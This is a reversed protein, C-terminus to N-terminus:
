AFISPPVSVRSALTPSDWHPLRRGLPVFPKKWKDSKLQLAAPLFSAGAIAFPSSRCSPYRTPLASSSPTPESRPVSPVGSLGCPLLPDLEPLCLEMTPTLLLLSSTMFSAFEAPLPLMKWSPQLPFRTQFASLFASDSLDFSRSAFDALVNDVGPISAVSANLRNARRLRARLHLLPSLPGETTLSARRLWSVTSTNDSGSLVTFPHPTPMACLVAEHAITAVLELMSNNITGSPNSSSVLAATVAAPFPFRWVYPTPDAALSSPFWVGGMGAGSADCAGVFHPPGPVLDAIATPRDALSQALLRWQQLCQLTTASLPFSRLPSLQRHRQLEAQLPSFLGEGGPLALVMSRLEGLLRHWQTVSSSRRCMLDSLLSSLRELRHPPLRVTGAVTDVLWGLITGTTKWSADGQNLKKQSIPERRVPETFDSPLSNPRFVDNINFMLRRRLNTAVPLTQALAMFDDIYVDVFQLPQQFTLTSPFLSTALASFEPVDLAAADAEQFHPTPLQRPANNSYDAITETAMCFYPPSELWGMPLVTPIALMPQRRSSPMAVALQLAGRANLPVRYYGDSLDIKLLHVPGFRPNAYAIRQLVRQFARGFQMAHPSAVQLTSPGVGSFTYDIITRPRRNRQPVVGAPSIKLGPLRRVSHYPVVTWYKRATMDLMEEQLFDAFLHKASPHSGRRMNADKHALSWPPAKNICPAGLRIFQRLSTSHPHTWAAFADHLCKVRRLEAFFRDWGITVIREANIAALKGLEAGSINRIPSPRCVRKASPEGTESRIPLTLHQPRLATNPL